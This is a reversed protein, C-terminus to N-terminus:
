FFREAFNLIVLDDTSEPQNTEPAAEAAAVSAELFRDAEDSSVAGTADGTCEERSIL